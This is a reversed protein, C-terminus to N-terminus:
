LEKMYTREYLAYGRKKYYEGVEDDISIMTILDCNKMKAWEEFLDILQRGIGEGRLAPDVYWGLEIAMKQPGLIFPSILGALFAKDEYIFFCKDDDTLLKEVLDFTVDLDAFDGYAQQVFKWAVKEASDIDELSALKIM